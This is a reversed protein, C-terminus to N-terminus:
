EPLGALRLTDSFDQHGPLYDMLEAMKATTLEPIIALLAQVQARAEDIRGLKMMSFARWKMVSTNPPNFSDLEVLAEGHRGLLSLSVGRMWHYWPTVAPNRELAMELQRLGLESNGLAVQVYGSAVLGDTDNPNLALAKKLHVLARDYQKVRFAAEGLAWHSVSDNDDLAVARTASELARKANGAIDGLELLSSGVIYSLTRYSHARAYAPDIEIAADCHERARELDALNAPTDVLLRAKLYHDYARMDGPLKRKAIQLDEAQVRPAISAVIRQTVEDQVAFIDELDRDYREAWVHHGSQADILQATIRVRNGARRVSGEAIYRVGLQRGIKEVDVSQGKFTFSTNRAIVFLFRFRSLETIIDETIGDSFYEQEPDGSMNTFPLVVISPRDTAIKNAGVVLQPQGAVRYVRVPEAINKLARAGLDTFGVGVKNRAHDYATGSVLIGGPEALAELRAAINVGDGYLDSGEVMVDGLNVGIRLAIQRDEPQDGNAAAMGEQLDVACQVANVASGFEVLVGDGTSKFVRGQHKAVLPELVEKRRAKLIAFTGAEDREMLRSYGVVDAALIAALRRRTREEAM